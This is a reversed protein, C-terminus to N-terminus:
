RTRRVDTLMHRIVCWNEHPLLRGEILPEKEPRGRNRFPKLVNM